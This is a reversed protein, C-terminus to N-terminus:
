APLRSSPLIVSRLTSSVTAPSIITIPLARAPPSIWHPAASCWRGGGANAPSTAFIAAAQAAGNGAVPCSISL